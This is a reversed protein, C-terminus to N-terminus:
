KMSTHSEQEQKNPWCKLAAFTVLKSVLLSLSFQTTQSPLFVVVTESGQNLLRKRQILSAFPKVQLILVTCKCRTYHFNNELSNAAADDNIIDQPIINHNVHYHNKKRSRLQHKLQQEIHRITLDQTSCQKFIIMMKIITSLLRLKKTPLKPPKVM